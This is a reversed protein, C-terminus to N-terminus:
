SARTMTLRSFLYTLYAMQLLIERTKTARKQCYSHNVKLKPLEKRVPKMEKENTDDDDNEEVEDPVGDGKEDEGSDIGEDEDDSDVPFGVDSEDIIEQFFGRLTVKM